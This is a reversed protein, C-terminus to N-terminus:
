SLRNLPKTKTQKRSHVKYFEFFNRTAKVRSALRQCQISNQPRFRRRFRARFRPWRQACIRDDVVVLQARSLLWRIHPDTRKPAM